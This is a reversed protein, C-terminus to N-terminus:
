RTSAQECLIRFASLVLDELVSGDETVPSLPLAAEDPQAVEILRIGPHSPWELSLCTCLSRVSALQESGIPLQIHYHQALREGLRKQLGDIQTSDLAIPETLIHHSIRLALEVIYTAMSNCVAEVFGAAARLSEITRLLDPAMDSQAMCFAEQRGEASGREFHTQRTLALRDALCEAASLSGESGPAGNGSACRFLPQFFAGPEEDAPENPVAGHLV